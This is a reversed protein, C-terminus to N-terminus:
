LRLWQSFSRTSFSVECMSIITNKKCLFCHCYSDYAYLFVLSRPWWGVELSQLSKLGADNFVQEVSTRALQSSAISNIWCSVFRPVAQGWTRGGPQSLSRWGWVLRLCWRAVEQVLSNKGKMYNCLLRWAAGREEKHWEHRTFICLAWVWVVNIIVKNFMFWDAIICVALVFLFTLCSRNRTLLPRQSSFLFLLM